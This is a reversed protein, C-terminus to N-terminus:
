KKNSFNKAAYTLVISIYYSLFSATEFSYNKLRGGTLKNRKKM